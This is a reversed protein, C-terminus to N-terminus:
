PEVGSVLELMYEPITERIPHDTGTWYVAVHEVRKCINTQTEPDFGYGTIITEQGIVLAIADAPAMLTVYYPKMKVLTGLEFKFSPPINENIIRINTM